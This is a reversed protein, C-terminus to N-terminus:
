QFHENPQNSAHHKTHDIHLWRIMKKGSLSSGWWVLLSCPTCSNWWYSKFVNNLLSKSTMGPSLLLLQPASLTSPLPTSTPTHTSGANATPPSKVVCDSGLSADAIYSLLPTSLSVQTIHVAALCSCLCLEGGLAIVSGTSLKSSAQLRFSVCARNWLCPSPQLQRTCPRNSRYLCYTGYLKSALNFTPNISATSFPLQVPFPSIPSQSGVVQQNQWSLESSMWAQFCMQSGSGLPWNTITALMIGLVVYWICYTVFSNLFVAAWGLIATDGRFIEHDGCSYWRDSPM